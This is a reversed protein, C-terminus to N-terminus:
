HRPGGTTQDDIQVGLFDVENCREVILCTAAQTCYAPFGSFGVVCPLPLVHLPLVHVASACAYLKANPASISSCTRAAGCTCVLDSMRTLQPNNRLKTDASIIKFNSQQSVARQVKSSSIKTDM